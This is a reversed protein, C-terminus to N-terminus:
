EEEIKIRTWDDKNIKNTDIRTRWIFYKSLRIVKYTKLNPRQTDTAGCDYHRAEIKITKDNKSEFLIADTMWGCVSGFFVLGMIFLAVFSVSITAFIKGIITGLKDKQKITGTLTFIIALPIGFFRIGFYINDIKRDILEIPLLLSLIGVLICIFVYSISTWFVIKLFAKV